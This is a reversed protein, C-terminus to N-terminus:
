QKQRDKGKGGNLKDKGKGGTLKDAGAQGVLVDNGRGGSLTDRGSGGCLGDNGRLGKLTDAGGLGLIGDPGKGGSIRDKGDTGILNIVTKGCLAREYAGMDASNGGPAPAIGKLDFPRPVGRQDAGTSIGADLAPSGAALAHTRTPGGNDALPALKPDVGLRNAALDNIPAAGGGLDPNGLLSFSMGIGPGFGNDRVDPGEDLATNGAIISSTIMRGGDGAEWLGGADATASNGTITTSEITITDTGNGFHYIGGGDDTNSTGARNGSITSNRVTLVTANTYIAGGEAGSVNGTLTSSLVTLKAPPDEVYVAGGDNTASTNSVLETRQLTLEATLTQVAGGDQGGSNGDALTLDAIRVPEGPTTMNIDFIRSADNGSVTIRDAGPGSISTEDTIVIEGSTLTVTGSLNSAFTIEDAAVTANADLVAQRLSGPGSDALNQVEIVAAEAAAGAGITMGLSLGAGTAIRRRSGHKVAGEQGL